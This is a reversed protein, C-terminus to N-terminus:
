VGCIPHGKSFTHILTLNELVQSAYSGPHVQYLKACCTNKPSHHCFSVLREKEPKPGRKHNIKQQKTKPLIVM